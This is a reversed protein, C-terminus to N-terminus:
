DEETLRENISAIYNKIGNMEWLLIAEFKTLGQEKMMPWVEENFESFYQRWKSEADETFTILEERTDM